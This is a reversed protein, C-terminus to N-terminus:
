HKQMFAPYESDGTANSGGHYRQRGPMYRNSRVTSSIHLAPIRILCHSDSMAANAHPKPLERRGRAGFLKLRLAAIDDVIEADCPGPM